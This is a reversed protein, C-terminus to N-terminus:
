ILADHAIRCACDIAGRMAYYFNIACYFIERMM